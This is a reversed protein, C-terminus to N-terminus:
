VSPNQPTERFGDHRYVPKGRQVKNVCAMGGPLPGVSLWRLFPKALIKTMPLPTLTREEVGKARWGFSRPEPDQLGEALLPRSICELGKALDLDM